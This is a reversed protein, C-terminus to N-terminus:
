VAMSCRTLETLPAVPTKWAQPPAIATLASVTASSRRCRTAVYDGVIRDWLRAELARDRARPILTGMPDTLDSLYEVIASSEPITLGATEDRL